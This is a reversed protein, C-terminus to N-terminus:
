SHRVNLAGFMYQYCAMLARHPSTQGKDRHGSTHPRFGWIRYHYDGPALCHQGTCGTVHGLDRNRSGMLFYCGPFYRTLAHLVIFM